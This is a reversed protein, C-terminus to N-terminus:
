EVTKQSQVPLVEFVVGLGFAKEFLDKKANGGFVEVFLDDPGSLTLHANGGDIRCSIKDIAKCRRRDLGDALRLIGGLRSVCQKELDSLKQFQEHKKKPLAKRHYRAVQAALERERPSIGFLEAHRILHYSHKHHSEYNIWAGVDHLLAAVELILRERKKFRCAPRLDDFIALALEAVQLSHIEEIQCSRGFDLVCDRWSREVPMNGALGNQQLAKLIMGERIGRGNVLLSNAGFFEMLMDVVLVGATIIDSRDQPLGPIARREALNSRVLMALIHVVESRLVTVGHVSPLEERRHELAMQGIATITGGSGLIVPFLRKSGSFCRKLESRVYRRLKELDGKKVPDSKLFRETMVVAGLELSFHEEIMRGQASTLEASGGGMDLVAYRQGQMDFNRLASHAALAAEEEGSIVRISVGLVSELRRVLAAGNTASRVASTAVAEVHKVGLGKLLVAMRAAAKEAREAADASIAGSSAIGEGLRITEKEDDLIRYTGGRLAEVVICRISNTGIDIAALRENKM